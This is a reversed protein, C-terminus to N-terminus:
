LTISYELQQTTSNNTKSNRNMRARITVRSKAFILCLENSEKLLAKAKAVDIPLKTNLAVALWYATEGCEEVVISLKAYFERDSRARCVARYNAGTTTACRIAQKCVVDFAPNYRGSSGERFLTLVGTALGFSRRKLQEAIQEVSSKEGYASPSDRAVDLESGNQEPDFVMMLHMDLTPLELANDITFVNRDEM